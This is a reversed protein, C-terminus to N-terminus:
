AGEPFLADVFRKADFDQLDNIKEGVGIYKLPIRQSSSIGVVIGGKATGDLKTLAIGSVGLAENFLKAQSLANQGTTSDLVLLIEHPAHPMKKGITRKIKKLEEMLNVNTQLRGATDIFVIDNGRSKGAEISDYAVAAPDSGKNHKVIDAGARKAWIDIQEIAAARFTDAAAILVKKNESVHRAALKGITTTKGVGNVGVVMIVHPKQLDKTENIPETQLLALIETKLIEKLKDASQIKKAQKEINEMLDMTTKVGIDATILLNELEELIDDDLKSKGTFLKEIDTNLFNSTKSLGNKLRNFFGKKGPSDLKKEEMDVSSEIVPKKKEKKEKKEKEEKPDIKRPGIRNEDIIPKVPVKEKAEHDDKVQKVPPKKKDKHDDQLDDTKKDTDEQEPSLQIKTEVRDSELGSELGKHDTKRRRLCFLVIVLVAFLFLIVWYDPSMVNFINTIKTIVENIIQEM